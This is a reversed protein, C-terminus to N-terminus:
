SKTSVSSFLTSFKGNKALNHTRIFTDCFQLEVLKNNVMLMLVFLDSPCLTINIKFKYM